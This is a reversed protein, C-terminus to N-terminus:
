DDFLARNRKYRNLIVDRIVRDLDAKKEEQKCYARFKELNDEVDRFPGLCEEVRQYPSLMCWDNKYCTSCKQKALSQYNIEDNM